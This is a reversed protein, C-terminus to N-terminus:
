CLLADRQPYRGYSLIESDPNVSLFVAFFLVRLQMRGRVCNKWEEEISEFIGRGGDPQDTGIM